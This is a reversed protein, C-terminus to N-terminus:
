EVKGLYDMKGVPVGSHRLIDYATTVHFYFNPLAFNLLYDDGRLTVKTGLNLEIPRAASGDIQEANVSELFRRTKAIREQLDAFTTEDDAFSPNEIGALRAAVGKASDSARQIQGALTLMDPALRAGVLEAPDISGAAAHTSGKELIASLNNLMRVLVPISARYMSLSM